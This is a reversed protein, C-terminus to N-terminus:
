SQCRSVEFEIGVDFELGQAIELMADAAKIQFKSIGKNATIIDQRVIQHVKMLSM